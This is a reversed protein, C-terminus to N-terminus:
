PLIVQSSSLAASSSLLAMSSLLVQRSISLLSSSVQTSSLELVSDAQLEFRMVRMLTSSTSASDKVELVDLTDKTGYGEKSVFLLVSETNFTQSKLRGSLNTILTSSEGEQTNFEVIVSDLAKKSDSDVVFVQYLVDRKTDVEQVCSFLMLLSLIVILKKM